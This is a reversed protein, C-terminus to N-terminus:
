AARGSEAIRRECHDSIAAREYDGLTVFQVGCGPLTSEDRRWRAVAECEIPLPYSDLVLRLRVREGVAPLPAGEATFFAGDPGLNEFRVAGREGDGIQVTGSLQLVM